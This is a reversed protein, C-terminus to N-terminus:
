WVALLSGAALWTKRPNQITSMWWSPRLWLDAGWFLCVACRLLCEPQVGLFCCTPLPLRYSAARLQPRSREGPVQDGSNSPGPFPVFCLVGKHLVQSGSGSHSLGPVHMCGLAWRLCNRASCGLAQVSYVPFACVGHAPAFGTHSLCQACEGCLGTINTQLTGGEGCCSQVLSGLFTDM